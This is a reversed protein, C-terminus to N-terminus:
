ERLGLVILAGIVALIGLVIAAISMGKRGHLGVKYKSLALAGFVIALIRLPIGVVFPGVIGCIWSAVAM